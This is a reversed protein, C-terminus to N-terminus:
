IFRIMVWTKDLGDRSKDCSFTFTFSFTVTDTYSRLCWAMLRTPFPLVAERARLRPVRHPSYVWSGAAEGGTGVPCPAPRDWLRDRCKPSSFFWEFFPRCRLGCPAYFHYMAHTRLIIIIFPLTSFLPVAYSLIIYRVTINVYLEMVTPWNRVFNKVGCLVTIVANVM